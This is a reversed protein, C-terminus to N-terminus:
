RFYLAVPEGFGSKQFVRQAALNMKETDIYFLTRGLRLHENLSLQLAKSALGKGREAPDTWIPGVVVANSEVRYYSCRGVTCWGASVARGGRTVLYLSRRASALKALAKFVGPKGCYSAVRSIRRLGQVASNLFEFQLEPELEVAYHRTLEMRYVLQFSVHDPVNLTVIM